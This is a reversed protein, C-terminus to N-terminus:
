VGGGRRGHRERLHAEARANNRAVAVNYMQQWMARAKEFGFKVIDRGGFFIRGTTRIVCLFCVIIGGWGGVKVEWVVGFDDM